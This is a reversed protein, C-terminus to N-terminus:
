LIVGNILYKEIMDKEVSTCPSNFHVNSCKTFGTYNNLTGNICCAFGVNKGYLEANYNKDMIPRKLFLRPYDEMCLDTAPSSSSSSIFPKKVHNIDYEAQQINIDNSMMTTPLALASTVSGFINGTSLSMGFGAVNNAIQSVGGIVAQKYNTSARQLTNAYDAQALGSYPIQIGITGTITQMIISDKFVCATCVGNAVDIIYKVGISHNMYESPSLSVYGIYPLYLQCESYPEYDRFDNYFPYYLIEGLDLTVVSYNLKKGTVPLSDKKVVQNGLTINQTNSEIFSLNFPYKMISVICDIPNQTLFNKTVDTMDQISPAYESYLWESIAEINANNIAYMKAFKNIGGDARDKITSKDSYKGDDPKIDPNYKSQNRLSDWDFQEQEKNKIGKTYEGHTIGQNDIIGMFMHEDTLLEQLEKDTKITTLLTSYNDTFFMGSYAMMKLCYNYFQEINNSSILKYWLRRNANTSLKIMEDYFAENVVPSYYTHASSLTLYPSALENGFGTLTHTSASSISQLNGMIPTYKVSVAGLTQPQFLFLHKKNTKDKYMNCDMNVMYFNCNSQEATKELVNSTDSTNGRFIVFTNNVPYLRVPFSYVGLVYPYEKYGVEKYTYLDFFEMNNKNFLDQTSTSIKSAKIYIIWIVKNYTFEVIPSLLSAVVPRVRDQGYFTKDGTINSNDWAGYGGNSLEKIDCYPIFLSMPNSGRACNAFFISSQGDRVQTLSDDNTNIMKIKTWPCNYDVGIPCISKDPIRDYPISEGFNTAFAHRFYTKEDTNNFTALKCQFNPLKLFTDDNGYIASINKM